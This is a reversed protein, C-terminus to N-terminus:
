VNKFVFFGVSLDVSINKLYSHVVSDTVRGYFKASCSVQGDVYQYFYALKHIVFHRVVPFCELLHWQSVVIPTVTVLGFVNQLVSGFHFTSKESVINCHAHLSHAVYELASCYILFSTVM